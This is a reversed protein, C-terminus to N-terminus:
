IMAMVPTAMQYTQAGQCRELVSMARMTNARMRVENEGESSNEERTYITAHQSVTQESNVAFYASGHTFSCAGPSLALRPTIDETDIIEVEGIPNGEADLLQRVTQKELTFNITRATGAFPNFLYDNYEPRLVLRTQTAGYHYTKTTVLIDRYRSGDPHVHLGEAGTKWRGYYDKIKGTGTPRLTIRLTDVMDIYNGQYMLDMPSHMGSTILRGFYNKDLRDNM